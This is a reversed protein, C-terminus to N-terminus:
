VSDIKKKSRTDRAGVAQTAQSLLALGSAAADTSDEAKGGKKGVKAPPSGSLPLGRRKSARRGSPPEEKPCAPGGAFLNNNAKRGEDENFHNELRETM